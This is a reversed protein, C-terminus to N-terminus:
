DHRRGQFGLVIRRQLSSLCGEALLVEGLRMSRARALSLCREVEGASVFGLRVAIDGFLAGGPVVRALGRLLLEQEGEAQRLRASLVQHLLLAPLATALGSETAVLAERIGGALLRPDGMGETQIVGFTGIMGSVTGLLGLLPLVGVLVGLVRLHQGMGAIEGAALDMSAASRGSSSVRTVCRGSGAWARATRLDRLLRSTRVGCAIALWWAALSALLIPGMVLGGAAFLDRLM